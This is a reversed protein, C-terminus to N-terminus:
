LYQRRILYDKVEHWYLPKILYYLYSDIVDYRALGRGVVKFHNIGFEHVYRRIEENRLFVDGELLGFLFNAAQPADSHRCHFVKSDRGLQGASINLYHEKRYRCGLTCYENVMIELREGGQLSRIVREKKTLNYNLVVRDFKKLEKEISGWDVIEKTTSSIRLLGPHHEEIFEDLEDSYIIVGNNSGESLVGLIERSYMDEEITRSDILQNSFTANCGIGKDNFQEITKRISAIPQATGFNNRGGCLRSGAFGGYVSDIKVDEYFIDRADQYFGAFLLNIETFETLGPLTVDIM